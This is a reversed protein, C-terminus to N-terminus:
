NESPRHVSLTRPEALVHRYAGKSGAQCLTFLTRSLDSIIETAKLGCQQRCHDEVVPLRAGTIRQASRVVSQPVTQLESSELQWMLNHYLGQSCARHDNPPRQHPNQYREHWVEEDALFFFFFRQRVRKKKLGM